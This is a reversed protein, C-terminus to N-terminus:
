ALYLAVIYSVYPSTCTSPMGPKLLSQMNHQLAAFTAPLPECAIVRGNESVERAAQAAFIGINAGVDIVTDGKALAIGHKLYCRKGEIENFLFAVDAKSVYAIKKDNYLITKFANSAACAGGYRSAKYPRHYVWPTSLGQKTLLCNSDRWISHPM